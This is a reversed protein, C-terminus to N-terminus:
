ATKKIVLGKVLDYLYRFNTPASGWNEIIQLDSVGEFALNASATRANCFKITKMNTVDDFGSADNSTDEINKPIRSAVEVQNVKVTTYAPYVASDQVTHLNWLASNSDGRPLDNEEREGTGAFTRNYTTLTRHTGIGQTKISPDYDVWVEIKDLGSTLTGALDVAIEYTDINAMGIAFAEREAFTDLWQPYWYFPIVGNKAVKGNHDHTFIKLLDGGSAQVKQDTGLTVEVRLIETTIEAPTLPTGSASAYLFFAFHKGLTIVQTSARGGASVGQMSSQRAGVAIM